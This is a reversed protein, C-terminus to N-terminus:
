ALVALWPASRGRAGKLGTVCHVAHHTAKMFELVRGELLAVSGCRQTPAEQTAAAM